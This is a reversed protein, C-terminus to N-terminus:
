KLAALATPLSRVYEMVRALRPVATTSNATPRAAHLPTGVADVLGEVVPIMPAGDEAVGDGLKDGNALRSASTAACLALSVRAAADSGELRDPGRVNSLVALWDCVGASINGHRSESEIGVPLGNLHEGIGV